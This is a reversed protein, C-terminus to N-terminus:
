LIVVQFANGLARYRETRSIGGGRTHDKPFGLLMEYEDPELPAVKNKGVWILNWRKCMKLVKEQVNPPPPEVGCEELDKRIRETVTAPGICTLLCNLKRRQDWSPWWKKTTPLAEQITLPPIPLLPSRSEIPLNHIYGRKRTTACFFKSDVFEPEIEFLFRSIKDWVGKPALAVNEYYFYPPGALKYPLKRAVMPYLEKPIGFGTMSNSLQTIEVDIALPKKESASCMRSKYKVNHLKVRKETHHYYHDRPQCLLLYLMMHSFQM